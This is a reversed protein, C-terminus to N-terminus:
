PKRTVLVVLTEGEDAFSKVNFRAFLKPMWWEAGQQILHANRGDPMKKAAPGTAITYLGVGITVRRLDDLVADIHDPEIHELVDICAVLRCPAPPAAIAPIAPDYARVAVSPGLHKGLEEALRGKGAGYDLIEAAKLQRALQAVLPARQVSAVGYDPNKHMEAQLARYDESILPAASPTASM